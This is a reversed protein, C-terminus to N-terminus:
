IEGRSPLAILDKLPINSSQLVANNNNIQPRYNNIAVTLADILTALRDVSLALADRAPNTSAMLYLDDKDDFSIGSPRGQFLAGRSLSKELSFIGDHVKETAKAKSQLYDAYYKDMEAKMDFFSRNRGADKAREALNKYEETTKFSKEWEARAIEEESEKRIGLLKKVWDGVGDFFKKVGGFIKEDFFDKLAQWREEGLIFNGLKDFGQFLSTIFKEVGSNIFDIAKGLLTKSGDEKTTVKHFFSRIAETTKGIFNGIGDKIARLAAVVRENVPRDDKNKDLLIKGIIGIPGFIASNFVAKGITKFVPVAKKKWFDGIKKGTAQFFKATKEGGIGGLIAGVGVGVAGGIAAGIPGGFLMGIGAGLSGYKLAGKLAGKKGGEVSTIASAFGANFTSVGWKKANKAGKLGDLAMMTVGAAIGAVGLITSGLAGKAFFSALKPMFKPALAKTINKTQSFLNSILSNKGFINSLFNKALDGEAGKAAGQVKTQTELINGLYLFGLSNVGSLRAVDSASPKLKSRIRREKLQDRALAREPLLTESAKQFLNDGGTVQKFLSQQGKSLLDGPGNPLPM